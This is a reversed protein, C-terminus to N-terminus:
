PENAVMKTALKMLEIQTGVNQLDSTMAEIQKQQEVFSKQQIALKSELEAIRAEQREIKNQHQAVRKHEKLFENLLMANVQDYRVSYPKAAKDRVVLDPNVIEVDEAVLGFQQMGAPDIEKKYHFAVPHLAFLAESAKDLPRIGEKFRKSSTLTGLKNESNILVSIGNVSMQGFISAIYCANSEGAVGQMGAGVYVNNNGTTAYFGATDGIATNSSGTTNSYLAAGGNATNSGGTTNYHLADVGNATNLHGETNNLLARVGNATNAIGITNSLLAAAGTATNRDATNFLLAGAGTATNFSGEANSFLSFWGVATNASGTTLNFLSNQGEATNFGPYGGDPAPVVAQAKTLLVLCIIALLITRLTTERNKMPESRINKNEQDPPLKKQDM